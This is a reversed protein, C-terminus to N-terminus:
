SLGPWAEWFISIFLVDLKGYIKGALAPALARESLIRNLIEMLETLRDEAPRIRIAGKPYNTFDIM